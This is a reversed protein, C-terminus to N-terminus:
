HLAEYVEYKPQLLRLAKQNVVTKSSVLLTLALMALLSYFTRTKCFRLFEKKHRHMRNPTLSSDMMEIEIQEIRNSEFFQM